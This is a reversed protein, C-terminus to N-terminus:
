EDGDGVKPALFFTMKATESGVIHYTIKMPYDASIKIDVEKSLKNYLCINHLYNLSFGSKISEGEEIAYSTLDDMKIECSMKGQDLSSSTLLIKEESCNIELSDGFTKLQNIINAFNASGITFEAQYEIEPIDMTESDIEILSIEFYKDFEDKNESTFHINLKDNNENKYKIQLIQSKERSNLVRYFISANIGITIGATIEYVDFWESPINIELISVRSNDM